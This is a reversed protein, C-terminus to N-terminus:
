CDKVLEIWQNPTYSKAPFSLSSDYSKKTEKEFSYEDVFLESLNPRNYDGRDSWLYGQDLDNQDHKFIREINSRSSFYGYPFSVQKLGEFYTSCITSILAKREDFNFPAKQLAEFMKYKNMGRFSMISLVLPTPPIDGRKIIYGLMNGNDDLVLSVHKHYKGIYPNHPGWYLKAFDISEANNLFYKVAVGVPIGEPFNNRLDGPQKDDKRNTSKDGYARLEGYCPRQTRPHVHEHGNEKRMVMAFTNGGPAKLLWKKLKEITKPSQICNNNKKTM